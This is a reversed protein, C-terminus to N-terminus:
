LRHWILLKMAKLVAQMLRVCQDTSIVAKSLVASDPLSAIIKNVEAKKLDAEKAACVSIEYTTEANECDIEDDENAQSPTSLAILAALTIGLSSKFIIKMIKQRTIKNLWRVPKIIISM